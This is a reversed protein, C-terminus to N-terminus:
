LGRLSHQTFQRRSSTIVTAPVGVSLEPNSQPDIPNSIALYVRNTWQRVKELDDNAKEIQMKQDDNLPLAIALRTIMDQLTLWVACWKLEPPVSWDTMSLVNRPNSAIYQRIRRTVDPMVSYFVTDLGGQQQNGTQQTSVEIQELAADRLADM